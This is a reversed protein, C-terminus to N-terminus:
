EGGEEDIDVLSLVHRASVDEASRAVFETVSGVDLELCIIISRIAQARLDSFSAIGKVNSKM